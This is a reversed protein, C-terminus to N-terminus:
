NGIPIQFQFWFKNGETRNEAAFEHQWKLAFGGGKNGVSYVIQPGIAAVQQRFGDGVTAGGIKDDTFQKAVYGQLGIALQPLTEFARYNIAWDAFFVAGSKYDTDQNKLHFETGITTSFELKSTPFFTMSVHPAISFVDNSVESKTPVFFDIAANAFFNKQTNSWGLFIPTITVDGLAFNDSDSFATDIDTGIVPLVVASSVTFQDLQFDWTHFVRTTNVTVNADFGPILDNGNSDKFSSAAYFTSYSQIWTQGPTPVVGNVITDVGLPYALFGNETAQAMLPYQLTLGAAILVTKKFRHM